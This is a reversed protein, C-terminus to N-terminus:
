FRFGITAQYWVNKYRPTESTGDGKNDQIDWGARAGIVIKSFNLDIGGVVSLINKRINDNEFQNQQDINVIASNFEYKDSILFSFQPGALITIVSVPKFAIM